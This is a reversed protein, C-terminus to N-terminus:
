QKDRAMVEVTSFVFEGRGTIGGRGGLLPSLLLPRSLPKTHHSARLGGANGRCWAGTTGEFVWLGRGVLWPIAGYLKSGNQEACSPHGKSDHPTRDCLSFAGSDKRVRPGNMAKGFHATPLRRSRHPNGRAVCKQFTIIRWSHERNTVFRWVERHSLDFNVGIGCKTLDNHGVSSNGYCGCPLIAQEVRCGVM